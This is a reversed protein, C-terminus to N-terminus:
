SRRRGRLMAEALKRIQVMEGPEISYREQSIHLSDLFDGRQKYRRSAGLWDAVMEIRDLAGMDAYGNPWHEPHHPNRAQHRQITPKEAALRRKYEDSGYEVNATDSIRGFGPAESPTYKSLDHVLARWLLRLAFPVLYRAVWFRHKTTAVYGRAISLSPGTM